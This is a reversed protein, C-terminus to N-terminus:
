LRGENPGAPFSELHQLILGEVFDHVYIVRNQKEVELLSHTLLFRDLGALPAELFWRRRRCRVPLAIAGPPFWPPYTTLIFKPTYIYIYLYIYLCISIYIYLIYIFIYTYM